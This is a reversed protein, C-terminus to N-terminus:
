TQLCRARVISSEGYKIKLADVVKALDRRPQTTHGPIGLDSQIPTASDIVKSLRVGVLRLKSPLSWAKDLLRDLSAYIDTELDTPERLCESRRSQSMDSYRVIVEVCQTMKLDARIKSMLEDVMTRLTNRVFIKDLTNQDFTEQRGYSKPSVHDLLLPSNDFGKAFARLQEATSGVVSVLLELPASVIDRCTKLGASNLAHGTKEGVGPLWRVPLPGLFDEETGPPVEIISNPKRLKSAVSAVLKNQSIGLSVSLGTESVIRSNILNAIALPATNKIGTIDAYGEDISGQEVLPTFDRLIGFMKRSFGEYKEHDGEIVILSPCVRLANVTPM